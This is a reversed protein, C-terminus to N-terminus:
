LILPGTIQENWKYYRMGVECLKAPSINFTCSFCPFISQFFLAISKIIELVPIQIGATRCSKSTLTQTSEGM